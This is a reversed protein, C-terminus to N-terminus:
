ENQADLSPDLEADATNTRLQSLNQLNFSGFSSTHPYPAFPTFPSESMAFLSGGNFPNYATLASVSTSLPHATTGDRDTRPPTIVDDSSKSVRPFTPSSFFSHQSPAAFLPPLATFLSPSTHAGTSDSWTTTTDSPPSHPATFQQPPSSSPVHASSEGDLDFLIPRDWPDFARPKVSGITGHPPPQVAHARSQAPSIRPDIPFQDLAFGFPDRVSGRQHPSSPLPTHALNTNFTAASSNNNNTSVTGTLAAINNYVLETGELEPYYHELYSFESAASELSPPAYPALVPTTLIPGVPLPSKRASKAGETRASNADPSHSPSPTKVGTMRTTPKYLNKVFEKKAITTSNRDSETLSEDSKVETSSEVAKVESPPLKEDKKEDKRVWSKPSRKPGRHYPPLNNNPPKTNKARPPRDERVPPGVPKDAPLPTLATVSTVPTVTPTVSVTPTIPTLTTLTVPVETHTTAPTEKVPTLTTVPVATHTVVPTINVPTLPALQSTVPTVDVSAATDTTARTKAPKSRHEASPTPTVPVATTITFPAQPDVKSRLGKSNSRVRNKAAANNPVNNASLNTASKKPSASTTTLPTSAHTVHSSELTMSPLTLAPEPLTERRDSTNKVPSKPTTPSPATHQPPSSLIPMPRKSTDQEIDDPVSTKDTFRAPQPQYRYEQVIIVVFFVFMCFCFAIFLTRATHAVQASHPAQVEACLQVDTAPMHAVLPFSYTGQDTFLVLDRRVTAASFDPTFTLTLNHVQTPALSFAQCSHLKFDETECSNTDIGLADVKLPLTGDNVIQFSHTVNIGSSSGRSCRALHNSDLHLVVATLPSVAAASHARGQHLALHGSGGQGRVRIQEFVTLNNRVTLTLADTDLHHPVYVLPGLKVQKHPALLAATVCEPAYYFEAAESPWVWTLVRTWWPADEALPLLQVHVPHDSPNHLVIYQTRQTHLQTLGYDLTDSHLISPRTLSAHVDLVPAVAVDTHVTLQTTIQAAHEDIVHQWMADLSQRAELEASTLAGSAATNTHPMYHHTALAPDFTLYGIKTMVNPEVVKREVVPIFRPDTAHMHSINIARAFSNHAMISHHLRLGPFAPEDFTLTHPEIRLQGHLAHYSVNLRLTEHSTRIHVRGERQEEVPSSLAVSLVASSNSEISFLVDKLEGKARPGSNLVRSVRQTEGRSDTVHELTVALGTLDSNIQLVAVAVPNPNHLLLTKHTTEGVSVVGFALVRLPTHPAAALACHLRGSYSTLPIHLATINTRLVLEARHSQTANATFSVTVGSWTSNVPVSSVPTLHTIRFLPDNLEATLVTFPTNLRNTLQIPQVVATYPPGKASIPFTTSALEPIVHGGIVRAKFPLEIRAQTTDNTKVALKGRYVGDFKASFTVTGIDRSTLPALDTPGPFDIKLDIKAAINPDNQLASLTLEYVHVPHAHGNLLTLTVSRTQPAALSEASQTQRAHLATLTGFDLEDLTLHLASKVVTVEVHVILMDRDTKIYIFGQYKGANAAQFDLNIIQKRQYPTLEWLRRNDAPTGAAAATGAATGPLSLHLFGGSTFVEKVTLPESYPNYLTIPASYWHQVLVQTPSPM